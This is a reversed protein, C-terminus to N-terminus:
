TTGLPPISGGVGHNEPMTERWSGVIALLEDNASLRELGTYIEGVTRANLKAQRRSPPPARFYGVMTPYVNM